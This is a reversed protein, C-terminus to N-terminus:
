IESTEKEEACEHGTCECCVAAGGDREFVEACVWHTSGEGEDGHRHPKLDNM